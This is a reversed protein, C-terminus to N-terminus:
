RYCEQQRVHGCETWLPTQSIYFTVAVPILLLRVRFMSTALCDGTEAGDALWNRVYSSM